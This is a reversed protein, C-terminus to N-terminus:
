VYEVQGSVEDATLCDHMLCLHRIIDGISRAQLDCYAIGAHAVGAAHLRLLDRDHSVIVHQQTLAFALQAEDGAGILGADTSTTVDIGRLRLGQPSPTTWM